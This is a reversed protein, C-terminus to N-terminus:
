VTQSLLEALRAKTEEPPLLAIHRGQADLTFFGKCLAPLAQYQTHLQESARTFCPYGYKEVLYPLGFPSRLLEYEQYPYRAQQPLKRIVETLKDMLPSVEEETAYHAFGRLAALRMDVMREKKFAALLFTKLNRDPPTLAFACIIQNRSFADKSAQYLAQLYQVDEDTFADLRMNIMAQRYVPNDRYGRKGALERITAINTM